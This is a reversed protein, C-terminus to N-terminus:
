DKYASQIDELADKLMSRRYSAAIRDAEYGAEKAAQIDADAWEMLQEIDKEVKELLENTTQM